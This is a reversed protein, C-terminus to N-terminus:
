LTKSGRTGQVRGGAGWCRGCVRVKQDDPEPLYACCSTLYLCTRVYNKDDVHAM